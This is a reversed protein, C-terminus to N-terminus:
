VQLRSGRGRRSASLRRSTARARRSQATGAPGPARVRIEVKRWRGDRGPTRRSTASATSRAFRSRPDQRLGGRDAEDRVPLVGRRRTEGAIQTLRLRQEARSSQEAPARPVRGRVGDRGVRAGADDRRRLTITSRTDGGDTFLVLIKRGTDDSPATSISASRTTCRRSATRAQARSDARGAASLRAPRVERRAGRHRLGRADHGERRDAHQPIQGGGVAVAQHRRGHQRQHRVAPRRAAGAGRRSRRRARLLEITQKPRGRPDRLRGATLDTLFNGRRRHGDRRLQGTPEPASPPSSPWSARGACSDLVLVVAALRGTVLRWRGACAHRSGVLCRM